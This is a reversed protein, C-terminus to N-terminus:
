ASALKVMQQLDPRGRLLRLAASSSDAEYSPGTDPSGDSSGSPRETPRDAQGTYVGVLIPLLQEVKARNARASKRFRQWDEPEISDRLLAMCAALAGMSDAEADQAAEAFEMFAFENVEDVVRFSEGWLTVEAM